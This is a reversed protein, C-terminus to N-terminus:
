FTITFDKNKNAISYTMSRSFERPNLKKSELYINTANVISKNFSKEFEKEDTVRVVFSGSTYSAGVGLNELNQQIIAKKDDHSLSLM